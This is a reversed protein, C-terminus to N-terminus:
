THTLFDSLRTDEVVRGCDLDDALNGNEAMLSQFYEELRGTQYYEHYLHRWTSGINQNLRHNRELAQTGLRIKNELQQLTRVPFHLIELEPAPAPTSLGNSFTVSHNGDAIVIDPDPRHCVKPPLRKGHINCSATERIHMTEFFPRENDTNHRSPLFNSRQVALARVDDPIQQFTTKLTGTKPWWFEDADSNIIWDAKHDLAAIRAMRTVWVSQDHTSEQAFLLRLVGQAQYAKLIDTTRDSSNNDTAVIFDVGQRLHFEINEAIIDEENRCLLTMVLQM